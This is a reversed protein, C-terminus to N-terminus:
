CTTPEEGLEHRVSESWCSKSSKTLELIDEIPVSSEVPHELQKVQELLHVHDYVVLLEDINLRDISHHLREKLTM